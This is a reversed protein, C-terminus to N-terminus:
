PRTGILDEGRDHGTALGGGGYGHRKGMPTRRAEVIVPQAM